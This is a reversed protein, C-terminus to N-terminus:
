ETEEETPQGSLTTRYELVFDNWKDAFITILLQMRELQNSHVDDRASVLIDTMTDLDLVQNEMDRYAEAFKVDRPTCRILIEDQMAIV